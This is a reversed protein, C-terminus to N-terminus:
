LPKLARDLDRRDVIREVLDSRSPVGLSRVEHRRLPRLIVRFEGVRLRLWPERGVLPRVDLNRRPPSELLGSLANRMRNRDPPNMRGIDKTARKSLQVRETM